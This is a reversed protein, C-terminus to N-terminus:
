SGYEQWIWVSAAAVDKRRNPIPAHSDSINCILFGDGCQGLLNIQDLNIVEGRENMRIWHPFRGISVAVM